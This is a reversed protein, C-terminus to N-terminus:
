VLRRDGLRNASPRKLDWVLGLKQMLWLVYGAPDIHWWSFNLMAANQFAHHNNHLAQGLTPIALWHNNASCDGAKTRFPRTGYVHCVSNVAGILLNSVFVRIFGGWLLGTFFGAWTQSILGGLVAPFILGLLICTMQHKHILLLAPDTLKQRFEKSIVANRPNSIDFTWGIQAHFLGALRKKNGGSDIHPSHLDDASDSFEHHHRHGVMWYPLGSNAAMLGMVAFCIEIPKSTQFSNHAFYRHLMETGFLAILSFCLLLYLDLSSVGVTMALGLGVIAGLPPLLIMIALQLKAGKM